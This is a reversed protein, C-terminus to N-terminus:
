TVANPSEPPKPYWERQDGDPNEVLTGEGLSVSDELRTRDVPIANPEFSDMSWDDDQWRGRGSETVSLLRACEEGPTRLNAMEPGLSRAIASPDPRGPEGFVREHKSAM